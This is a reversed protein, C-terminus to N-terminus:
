PEIAVKAQQRRTTATTIARVRALEADVPADMQVRRVRIELWPRPEDLWRVEMQHPVLVGRGVPRWNSWRGTWPTLPGDDKYRDARCVSPLRTAPNFDIDMSVPGRPGPVILRSAHEDVPQWTIDPRELWASPFVLAEGWMAILAGQDIRAGSRVTRGIRVLGHGDVFADVGFRFALPSRGIRIDHVFAEGLRHSMRIELPIRPMGPRSMWAATELVVTHLRPVPAPAAVAVFREVPDPLTGETRSVSGVNM